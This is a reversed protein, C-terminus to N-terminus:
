LRAKNALYYDRWQCQVELNDLFALMKNVAETTTRGIKSYVVLYLEKRKTSYQCLKVRVVRPAVEFYTVSPHEELAQISM